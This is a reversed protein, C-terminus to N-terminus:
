RNSSLKKWGHAVLMCFGMSPVYLVREAVVALLFFPKVAPIFPLFMLVTKSSDGPYRLSFVVLTGLFCFFTVTAINRVDLMSEVLPITGMTWDCCLESPNLLLWANVPLLYNFTLQRVPSPSVAAPNDFRTFVPLQSQIVQVRIVVLLLTSFMLVILKLLMQLMCYPISGKGQLIHLVTYWLIPVTYGQAIFVEYVCCIGVVTVGQEKCLTAVAVLCVTAAIPTWVITNEPGRSRTYSLFAALFFISSLLEARGVVGTVAETHIPHVAFLLSAVLSSKNDLFLKCVKLFIICVIGHFIVNLFHYSIANLESFLYNLRFTFVTLPRYSKHSLDKNDLIASVDDFVFGCFLSNWYCAAVVGFILAFEKPSVYAM